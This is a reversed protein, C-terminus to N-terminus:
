WFDDFKPSPGSFAGGRVLSGLYTVLICGFFSLRLRLRVDFGRGLWL